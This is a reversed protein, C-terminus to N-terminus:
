KGFKRLFDTMVGTGPRTGLFTRVQGRVVSFLRGHGRRNSDNHKRLNCRRCCGQLNGKQFFGIPHTRLSAVMEPGRRKEMPITM